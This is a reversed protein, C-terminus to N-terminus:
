DTKFDIDCKVGAYWSTSSVCVCVFAVWPMMKPKFEKERKSGCM